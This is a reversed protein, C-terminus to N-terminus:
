QKCISSSSFLADLEMGHELWRGAGVARGGGWAHQLKQPANGVGVCGVLEATASVPIRMLAAVCCIGAFGQPTEFYLLRGALGRDGRQRECAASSPSGAGSLDLM